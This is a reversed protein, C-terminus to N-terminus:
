APGRAGGGGVDSGRGRPHGPVVLSRPNYADAMRLAPNMAAHSDSDNTPPEHDIDVVGVDDDADIFGATVIKGRADM